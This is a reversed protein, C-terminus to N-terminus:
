PNPEKLHNRVFKLWRDTPGAVEEFQKSDPEVGLFVLYQRGAQFAPPILTCNGAIGLRGRRRQWFAKDSHSSFDTLWDGSSPTRCIIPLTAPAIGKLTYTIYIQCIEAQNASARAEAVFIVKAEDVLSAHDRFLKAPPIYCAMAVSSLSFQAIVTLAKMRTAGLPRPKVSPNSNM